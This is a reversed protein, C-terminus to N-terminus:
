KNSNNAWFEYSKNGDNYSPMQPRSVYSRQLIVTAMWVMQEMTVFCKQILHSMTIRWEGDDDDDYFYCDQNQDGDNHNYNVDDEMGDVEEGTPFDTYESYVDHRNEPDFCSPVKQGSPRWCRWKM